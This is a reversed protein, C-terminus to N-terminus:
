HPHQRGQYGPPDAWLQPFVRSGSYQFKTKGRSQIQIEVEDEGVKLVEKLVTAITVEDLVGYAANEKGM